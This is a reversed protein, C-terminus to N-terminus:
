HEEEHVLGRLRAVGDFLRRKVTGLPVHLADAIEQYSLDGAFRLVIVARLKESLRSLARDVEERRQRRSMAAEPENNDRGAEVGQIAARRARSENGQGRRAMRCQNVLVAYLFASFRGRARYRDLSRYVELFANQAVDQALCAEGLYKSAVLLARHQHRRVLADFAELEGQRAALMLEDDSRKPAGTADGGSSSNEDEKARM